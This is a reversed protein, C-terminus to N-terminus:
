KSSNNVKINTNPKARIPCSNKRPGFGKKVREDSKMKSREREKFAGLDSITTEKKVPRPPVLPTKQEDRKKTKREEKPRQGKELGTSRSMSASHSDPAYKKPAKVEGLYPPSKPPSRKKSYGGGELLQRRFQKSPNNFTLKEIRSAELDRGSYLYLDYTLDAHIGNKFNIKIPILFGAYGQECVQYPHCIVKRNPEAFSEHLKFEISEVFADISFM